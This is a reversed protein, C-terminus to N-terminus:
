STALKRGLAVAEDMVKKNSKIDGAAGASGYVMGIIPAGLFGFALFLAVGAIRAKVAHM